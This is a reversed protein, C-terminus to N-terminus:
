RAGQFQGTVGNNDNSPVRPQSFLNAVCRDLRTMWKDFLKECSRINRAAACTVQAYTPKPRLDEVEVTVPVTVDVQLDGVIFGAIAVRLPEFVRTWMSPLPGDRRRHEKLYALDLGSVFRKRPQIIPCGLHPPFPNFHIYLLPQSTLTIIQSYIPKPTCFTSRM